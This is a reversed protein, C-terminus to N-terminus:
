TVASRASKKSAVPTNMHFSAFGIGVKKSVQRPVLALRTALGTVLPDVLGKIQDSMMLTVTM